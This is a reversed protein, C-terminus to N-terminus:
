IAQFWGPAPHQGRRDRGRPPAADVQARRRNRERSRDGKWARRFLDAKLLHWYGALGGVEPPKELLNSAEAERSLRASADAPELLARDALAEALRFRLNDTLTPTNGDGTVARFRDIASDLTAVAERRSEQDGPKLATAEVWSRAQAWRLVAAQFRLQRERPLDPNEKVFWDLLEIAESWRRRRVVADNARQAARDLTAAMELALEERRDVDITTNEIQDYPRSTGHWSTTLLPSRPPRRLRSRPVGIVLTGQALRM